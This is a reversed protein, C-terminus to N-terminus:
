EAFEVTRLLALIEEQAKRSTVDASIRLLRGAGLQWVAEAHYMRFARSGCIVDGGGRFSQVIADRGGIKESCETFGEYSAQRITKAEALTAYPVRISRITIQDFPAARFSFIIPNTVLIDPTYLTLPARQGHKAQSLM